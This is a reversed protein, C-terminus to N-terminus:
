RRCTFKAGGGERARAEQLITRKHRSRNLLAPLLGRGVRRIMEIWGLKVDLRSGFTLKRPLNFPAYNGVPVPRSKSGEGGQTPSTAAFAPLTKEAQPLRDVQHLTAQSPPAAVLSDELGEEQAWM